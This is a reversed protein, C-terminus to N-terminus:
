YSNCHQHYRQYLNNGCNWVVTRKDGGLKARVLLLLQRIYHASAARCWRWEWCFRRFDIKRWTVDVDVDVDVGCM